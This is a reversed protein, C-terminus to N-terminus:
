ARPRVPSFVDGSGEMVRQYHAQCLGRAYHPRDCAAVGCFPSAPAKGNVAYRKPEADPEGRQRARSAAKREAYYWARCQHAHLRDARGDSRIAETGPAIPGECYRCIRM